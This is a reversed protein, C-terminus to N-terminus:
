KIVLGQGTPLELVTYGRPTFFDDIATKQKRALYWGYDDFVIYGGSTVRDFLADLAATEAAPSNLDIHLFAISAPATGALSEPIFGKIIRVNPYDAFRQIVDEHLNAARYYRNAKAYFDPAEPFDSASSCIPSFGEFSDYLFLTKHQTGFDLMETIVWSFDGKFVGCEVFDGPLKLANQAAWVLTHLRWAISHPSHYSDYPHRNAIAAVCTSFHRNDLFGASKNITLLLNGWFVRHHIRTLVRTFFFTIGNAAIRRAIHRMIM